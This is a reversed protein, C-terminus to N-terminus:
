RPGGGEEALSRAKSSASRGIARPGGGSADMVVQIVPRVFPLRITWGLFAWGLHVHELARAFAGVSEERSGDGPEYTLRELGRSPHKEAARIELGVPGGRRLWNGLESCPRCSEAVYLRAPSPSWPRWRPRWRRVNNRYDVWAAGFRRTIESDEHWAALGAAYVFSMVAAAAVWASQVIVSALLLVLSMSLQMPNAVYSYVGSTVLQRPPDYPVPTGLGRTCFEQVASLGPIAVAVVLQLFLGELWLPRALLSSPSGGTEQLVVAPLVGLLLGSFLAVQLSARAPLHRDQSTWRALLQAPLLAVLIALAEGIFWRDGLVVVPKFVPMLVLDIMAGLGLVGVIPMSPFALVPAAGWLLAWGLYLDVPLGLFLGGEAEFRWWGYRLALLHLLLLASLNWATSLLAAARARPGPRRWLWLFATIAFPVYLGATRVLLSRNM